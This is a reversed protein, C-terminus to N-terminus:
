DSREPQLACLTECFNLADRAPDGEARAIQKPLPAWILRNSATLRAQQPREAVWRVLTDPDIGGETGDLTLALTLTLKLALATM